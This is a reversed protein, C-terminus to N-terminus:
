EMLVDCSFFYCFIGLFLNHMMSPNEKTHV